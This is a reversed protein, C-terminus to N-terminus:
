NPTTDEFSLEAMTMALYVMMSSVLIEMAEEDIRPGGSAALHRAFSEAALRANTEAIKDFDSRTM